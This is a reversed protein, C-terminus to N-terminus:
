HDGLELHLKTSTSQGMVVASSGFVYRYCLLDPTINTAEHINCLPKDTRWWNEPSLNIGDNGDINPILNESPTLFSTKM